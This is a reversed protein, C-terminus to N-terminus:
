IIPVIAMIFSYLSSVKKNAILRKSRKRTWEITNPISKIESGTRAVVQMSMAAFSSYGTEGEKMRMTRKTFCSNLRSTCFSSIIQVSSCIILTSSKSKCCVEGIGKRSLYARMKPTSLTCSSASDSFTLMKARLNRRMNTRSGIKRFKLCDWIPAAHM